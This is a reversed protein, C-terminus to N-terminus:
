QAMLLEENIAEVTFNSPNFKVNQGEQERRGQEVKIWHTVAELSTRASVLVKENGYRILYYM